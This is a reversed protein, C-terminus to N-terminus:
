KLSIELLDKGIDKRYYEYDYHITKASAYSKQLAGQMTEDISTVALVRGGSTVVKGDKLSTGAHFVLSEKIKDLGSIEFGKDYNGPYGGSVMMLTVAVRDDIDLTIKNLEMKTTALLLEVVDNKIRPFVVETEPDGMRCNYEIVFPNGDVNMLGIFVFGRYDMNRKSIGEITPKVIREIVKKHFDDDVFPVPSIAGMGGTNLGTDGEGIRKYDKAYPLMMYNKGDTLVFCSCEIGHLFEEIVVEKGAAGFKENYLIDHLASKAEAADDIILVGKGAALGSAKLVYPANLSDIFKYGDDITLLTFCNFRATPINYEQMFEKAFQKSGELQAGNADPGVVSINKLHEEKRFYDVIGNVLPDEPGVVLLEINKEAVFRGIKEFDNVGIAVNIGCTATGANGPAIYLNSCLPSEKVKFAIAHERGGSGLILINM